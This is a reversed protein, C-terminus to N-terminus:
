RNVWRSSPRLRSNGFEEYFKRVNKLEDESVTPKMISLAEEFDEQFNWNWSKFFLREETLQFLMFNSFNKM